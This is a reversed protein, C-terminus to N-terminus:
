NFYNIQPGFIPNSNISHTLVLQGACDQSSAFMNLSSAFMNLSSATTYLSWKYISSM